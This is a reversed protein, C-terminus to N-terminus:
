PELSCQPWDNSTSGGPSGASILEYLNSSYLRNGNSTSRVTTVRVIFVDRPRFVIITVGM